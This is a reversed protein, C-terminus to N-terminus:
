KENITINGDDTTLTICKDTLSSDVNSILKNDINGLHSNAALNFKQDKPLKLNINGLNSKIDINGCLNELSITIDSDKVDCNIDKSNLNSINIKSLESKISLKNQYSKPIDIDIRETISGGICILNKRNSENIYLINNDIKGEILESDGIVYGNKTKTFSCKIDKSDSTTINIVFNGSISIEKLNLIEESTWVREENTTRAPLFYVLMGVIMVIIFLMLLIKKIM